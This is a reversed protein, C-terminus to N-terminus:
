PKRSGKGRIPLRRILDDKIEMPLRNTDPILPVKVIEAIYETKTELDVEKRIYEIVLVDLEDDWIYSIEPQMLIDHNVFNMAKTITTWTM